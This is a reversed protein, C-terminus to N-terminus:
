HEMAYRFLESWNSKLTKYRSMLDPNNNLENSYRSGLEDDIEAIIKTYGETISARMRHFKREGGDIGNLYDNHSNMYALKTTNYVAESALISNRLNNSQDIVNPSVDQRSNSSNSSLNKRSEEEGFDRVFHENGSTDVKYVIRGEQFLAYNEMNNNMWNGDDGRVPCIIGIDYRKYKFPTLVEGRRNILAVKDSGEVSVAAMTGKFDSAYSYNQSIIEKGAIDIYGYKNRDFSVAALGSSYESAFEYKPPVIVKGNTDIYGWKSNLRVRMFGETAQWIIDYTPELVVKGNDDKIGYKGNVFIADRSGNKTLHCNSNGWPFIHPKNLDYERQAREKEDILYKLSDLEHLHMQIDAMLKDNNQKYGRDSANRNFNILDTELNRVDSLLRIIENKNYDAPMPVDKGYSHMKQCAEFVEISHNTIEIGRKKIDAPECGVILLALLLLTSACKM